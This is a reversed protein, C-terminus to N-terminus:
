LEKLPLTQLKGGQQVFTPGTLSFAARKLLPGLSLLKRGSINLM